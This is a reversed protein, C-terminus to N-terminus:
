LNLSLDSSDIPRSYTGVIQDFTAKLLPTVFDRYQNALAM